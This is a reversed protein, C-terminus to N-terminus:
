LFFGKKQSDNVLRLRTGRLELGGSALSGLSYFGAASGTLYEQVLSLYAEM